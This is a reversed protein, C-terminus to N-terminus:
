KLTDGKLVSVNLNKLDKDSSISISDILDQIAFAILTGVLSSFGILFMSIITDM